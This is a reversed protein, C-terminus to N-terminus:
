AARSWLFSGSASGRPSRKRGPMVFQGRPMVFLVGHMVCLHRQMAFPLGQMVSPHRHMVFPDGQMVFLTGHTIGPCEKTICPNTKTICVDGQTIGPISETICLCGDTIDICAFAAGSHSKVVSRYVSAISHNDISGFQSSKAGSANAALPRRYEASRHWVVLVPRGLVASGHCGARIM